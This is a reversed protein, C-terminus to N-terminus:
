ALRVSPVMTAPARSRASPLELWDLLPQWAALDGGVNYPKM